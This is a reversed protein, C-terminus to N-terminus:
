YRKVGKERDIFEKLADELCDAVDRHRSGKKGIILRLEKIFRDPIEALRRRKYIKRPRSVVVEAEGLRVLLELCREATRWGAKAGEAVENVTKPRDLAEAVKMCIDAFDRRERGM